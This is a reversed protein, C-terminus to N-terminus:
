LMRPKIQVVAPIINKVHKINGTMFSRLESFCLLVFEWSDAPKLTDDTPASSLAQKTILAIPSPAFPGISKLSMTLLVLKGKLATFLARSQSNTFLKAVSIFPRLPLTYISVGSPFDVKECRMPLLRPM